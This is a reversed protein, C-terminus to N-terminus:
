TARARWERDLIAYIATDCWAGKSWLDEVFRAEERMGLRTCLAASAHNRPDLNAIARHLGLDNFAIKLVANAAETMYGTGTHDPHLTWGIECTANAVDKIAFYIDGIVHGPNRACEIALQWFDGDGSLVVAKSCKAVKESVEERTRPEFPLYRCVEAHSQYAHIDDIDGDKTARLMLRATTVPAPLAYPLRASPSVSAVNRCGRGAQMRRAPLRAPRV